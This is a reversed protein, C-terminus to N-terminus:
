VIVFRIAAHERLRQAAEVVIGAGSVHGLTGAWLAVFHEERLALEARFSRAGQPDPLLRETDIWNPVVAVRQADAGRAIAHRAFADCIVSLADCHRYAYREIWRLVAILLRNRIMGLRIQADP